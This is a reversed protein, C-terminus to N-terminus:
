LVQKNANTVVMSHLTTVNETVDTQTDRDQKPELEQFGKGLFKM